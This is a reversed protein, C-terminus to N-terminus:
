GDVVPPFLVSDRSPSYRARQRAAIALQKEDWDTKTLHAIVDPTLPVADERGFVEGIKQTVSKSAELYPRLRDV